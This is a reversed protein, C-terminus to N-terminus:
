GGRNVKMLNFQMAQPKGKALDELTQSENEVTAGHFELFYDVNPDAVFNLGQMGRTRVSAVTETPQADFTAKKAGFHVTVKIAPDNPM